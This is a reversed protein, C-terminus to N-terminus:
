QKGRQRGSRDRRIESGHQGTGLSFRVAPPRQPEHKQDLAIPHRRLMHHGLSELPGLHGTGAATVAAV